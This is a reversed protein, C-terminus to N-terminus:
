GFYHRPILFVFISGILPLMIRVIKDLTYKLFANPAETNIYSVGMGSIFFFIPVGFQLLFRFFADKKEGWNYDNYKAGTATEISNM